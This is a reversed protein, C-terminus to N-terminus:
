NNNPQPIGRVNPLSWPNAEYRYIHPFCVVLFGMVSARFRTRRYLYRMEAIKTESHRLEKVGSHRFAMTNRFFVNKCVQAM